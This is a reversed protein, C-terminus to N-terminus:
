LLSQVVKEFTEKPQYGVYKKLITGDRDVVFTTPIGLIGGFGTQAEATAMFVPYRIPIETEMYARVDEVREDMSLGVIELGQSRYTDYLEQFHPIEDRCPACWTAWFDVILVKGAFQDLAVPNGRVDRLTLSPMRGMGTPRERRISAVGAIVLVALALFLLKSKM